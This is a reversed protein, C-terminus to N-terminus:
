GLEKIKKIGLICLIIVLLISGVGVFAWAGVFWYTLYTVIM